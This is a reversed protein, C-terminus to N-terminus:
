HDTVVVVGGGQGGVAGAGLDGHATVPVGRGRRGVLIGGCPRADDAVGAGCDGRGVEIAVGGGADGAIGVDRGAVRETLRRDGPDGAVVTGGRGGCGFGAGLGGGETVAVGRLGGVAPCHDGTVAAGRGGVPGAAQGADPAVAAGCIRQTLAVGGEHPTVVGAGNGAGADVVVREDETVVQEGVGAGAVPAGDVALREVGLVLSGDRSGWPGLGDVGFGARDGACQSEGVGVAVGQGVCRAGGGVPRDSEIGCGAGVGVCRGGPRREAVGVAGVGEGDGGGVTLGARRGGDVHRHGRQGFGAVLGRLGSQGAGPLDVLFGTHDRGRETEGVGVTVRQGVLDGLLGVVADDGDVVLGAGVGVRGFGTRFGTLGVPLVGEGHNGGVGVSQRRGVGDAQGDHRQGLRVVLRGDGACWAFLSNVGFRTGDGSRQAEGVGVAVFQGVGGGIGGVARDGDVGLGAGEGVGRGGSRFGTLGVAGVGEGDGGGVGVAQGGAGGDVDGDGCQGVRVVARGDGPIEALLADIGFGAGDGGGEAEGVGVAVVQGVGNGRGGVAGDGEVGLGAGVGVGRVGLGPRGEAVFVADVGEREGGRVTLGAGGDADFDGDGRKRLGVVLCRDCASWSRLGDVGFGAGDGSSQAEGVGVAVFQDVGGGIGGVARDGDVCHSAGVGVGGGGPRCGTFRVAGVGEGDGGGVGVAQGRHGGDVDGHGCQGFGVVLCRHGSIVRGGHSFVARGIDDVDEGIVGIGVAVRQGDRRDASGGM